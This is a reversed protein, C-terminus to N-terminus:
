GLKTVCVSYVVTGSPRIPACHLAIEGHLWKIFSKEQITKKVEEV